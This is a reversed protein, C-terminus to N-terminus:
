KTPLGIKAMVKKLDDWVRQRNEVTYQRLLYAPHFTPMVPIGNFERWNGRVKTIALAPDSLLYKSATAGLCVIAKPQIIRVQQALYPMCLLAEEPTPVRNGPPRVKVVNAIYVQERKLGMAQIQQNLLQGSRGVFPKSQRDEEEGPGEGVFMLAANPDGDGFVFNVSTAKRQPVCHPCQANHQAELEALARAKEAPSLQHAPLSPLPNLTRPEPNPPPLSASAAAFRPVADGPKLSPAPVHSIAIPSEVPAVFNSIPVSDAGLLQDTKIFQRAKRRTKPDM